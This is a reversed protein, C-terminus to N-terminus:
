AARGQRKRQTLLERYLADMDDILRDANYRDLVHAHGEGTRARADEPARLTEVIAQALAEPDAPAVLRGFRGNELLDPTGGVRTAVVPRRAALAEILAVPTGENLSSNVVLDLDGFVDRMDNMWGSFLVANGLGLRRCLNELASREEGDGVVVFRAQPWAESVRRAAELFTPMDKIPVLRGVAGIIPAGAPAHLLRRLAGRPLDRSLPTLELGLPMVRIRCASGIGLDLLDRRVSESVALLCNTLPALAREVGRYFATRTRGFYRSLVHGHYTHLVISVGTLRAAVRGLAGAKATHTHLIDPRLARMLKVLSWLARLDAIWRIERGLTDLRLCDVGMERSLDLFSGESPSERGVVLHADYGRKRLGATLILVHRSPGGINL